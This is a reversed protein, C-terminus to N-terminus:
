RERVVLTKAGLDWLTQRLPRTFLFALSVVVVVFQVYLGVWPLLGWIALIGWRVVSQAWGIPAGTGRQVVRLGLLLKMPTGGKWATVAAEWLFWVALAALGAVFLEADTVEAEPALPDADGVIAVRVVTGLLMGAIVLDLARAALRYWAGALRDDVAGPADPEDPRPTPPLASM